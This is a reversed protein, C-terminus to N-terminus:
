LVPKEHLKPKKPSESRSRRRPIPANPPTPAAFRRIGPATLERSPRPKKQPPKLHDLQNTRCPPKPHHSRTQRCPIVYNQHPPARAHARNCLSIRRPHQPPMTRRASKYQSSTSHAPKSTTQQLPTARTPRRPNIPHNKKSPNHKASKTPDDPTSTNSRPPLPM